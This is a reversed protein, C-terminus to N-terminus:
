YLWDIYSDIVEDRARYVGELTYGDNQMNLVTGTDSTQESIGLASTRQFVRDEAMDMTYFPSM